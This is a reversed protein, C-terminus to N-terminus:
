SDQRSMVGRCSQGDPTMMQGAISPCSKLTFEKVVSGMRPALEFFTLSFLHRDSSDPRVANRAFIAGYSASGSSGTEATRVSAAARDPPLPLSGSTTNPARAAYSTVLAPEKEQDRM